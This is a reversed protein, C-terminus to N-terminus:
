TVLQFGKIPRMALLILTLDMTGFENGAYNDTISKGCYCTACYGQHTKPTDAINCVCLHQYLGSINRGDILYPM